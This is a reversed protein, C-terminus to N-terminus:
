ELLKEITDIADDLLMASMDGPVNAVAYHCDETRGNGVVVIGLARRAANAM